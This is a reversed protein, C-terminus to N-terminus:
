EGPLKFMHSPFLHRMHNCQAGLIAALGVLEEYSTGRPYEAVPRDIGLFINGYFNARILNNVLRSAISAAEINPFILINARGAVEGVNGDGLKRHAINMSIATDSQLCGDFYAKFGLESAKQTARQAAISERSIQTSQPDRTQYSLFAVRPPTDLVLTSFQAIQLGIEVLDDLTPNRHVNCDGMLLIGDEGIDTNDEMTLIQCSSVSQVSSLPQLIQMIPRILQGEHKKVSSLLADAQGMALMMSAFFDNDQLVKYAEEIPMLPIGPHSRLLRYRGAFTEREENTIPDIIRVGELSIKLDKALNKINEQNGILIPVGLKMAFFQRAAKIARPDTGDAFVVRKPHLQLKEFLKCVIQMCSEECFKSPRDCVTELIFSRCSELL